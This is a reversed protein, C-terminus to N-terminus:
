ILFDSTIQNGILPDDILSNLREMLLNEVEEKPKGRMTAVSKTRRMKPPSPKPVDVAALLNKLDDIENPM